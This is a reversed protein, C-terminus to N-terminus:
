PQTGEPCVELPGPIGGLDVEWHEALLNGIAERLGELSYQQAWAAAEARAGRYAEPSAALGRLAETLARVDGPPVVLGRGEGLMQPVLGRDSGICVLGFAMGEAIAKPWGESESALVLVHSQEYYDLVREFSVSGTFEVTEELGLEKVKAELARHDPGGGVIVCKLEAGEGKLNSVASILVDVNKGASLRGVFIVRLPGGPRERGASARARAMQEATLISTFFPTVNAPQDPWHGYVTVPGRWWASRLLFRQLRVSRPEGPYGCWQGAYKAVLRRSFLPALAAGLLGLNGPCRVHIAEARWMARALGAVLWPLSLLQLTKSKLGPGGTERQGCLRINPRTFPLYDGPAAGSGSPAAIVVERFLDAWVDIERAYPGFASLRTGDWYHTVHSVIVL